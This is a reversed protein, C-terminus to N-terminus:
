YVEYYNRMTKVDAWWHVRNQAGTVCYMNEQKLWYYLTITDWRDDWECRSRGSLKVAINPVCNCLTTDWVTSQKWSYWDPTESSKLYPVYMDHCVLWQKCYLPIQRILWKEVCECFQSFRGHAEVYLETQRDTRICYSQELLVPKWSIKYSYKEFIKGCFELKM